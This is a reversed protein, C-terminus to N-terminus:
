KSTIVTIFAWAILIALGVIGFPLVFAWNGLVPKTKDVVFAFFGFFTLTVIIYAIIKKM